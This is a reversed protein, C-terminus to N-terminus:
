FGEATFEHSWSDTDIFILECNEQKLKKKKKSEYWTQANKFPFFLVLSINEFFPSFSSFVLFQKSVTSHTAKRDFPLTEFKVQHPHAYLM